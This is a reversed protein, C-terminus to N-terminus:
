LEKQKNLLAQREEMFQSKQTEMAEELKTFEEKQLELTEWLSSESITNLQEQLAAEKAVFSKEQEELQTSLDSMDLLGALVANNLDTIEKKLGAIVSKSIDADLPQDSEFQNRLDAIEDRM